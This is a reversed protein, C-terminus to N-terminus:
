NIMQWQFARQYGFDIRRGSGSRHARYSIDCNQIVVFTTVQYKTAILHVDTIDVPM